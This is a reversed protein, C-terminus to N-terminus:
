GELNYKERKNSSQYIGLVIENTVKADKLTVDPARNESVAEYFAKICAKHSVGWYDKKGGRLKDKALLKRRGSVTLYLRDDLLRLVGGELVFELEVKSNIGHSTTGFFSGVADNKYYLTALATDEVEIGPHASNEVNGKVAAIDGGLWRMLDLTHIAQNILLGGGESSWKGRWGSKLYYDEDRHWMVLGKAATLRGLRGSEIVEKMKRSTHNYRNQFVVGIRRDSQAEAQMLKKIEQMNIGVPKELVVHKKAALADAAMKSHLYHPTLIHVADIEPNALLEKYDTYAKCGYKHAIPMAKKVATDCVAKLTLGRIKNISELHTASITGCGIVAVNFKDDM